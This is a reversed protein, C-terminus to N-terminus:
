KALAELLIVGGVLLYLTYVDGRLSLVGLGGLLAVTRSTNLILERTATLSPVHQEARDVLITYIFSPAVASTMSFWGIAFAFTALDRVFYALLCAPVSLLPGLLLFPTRVRVRDSMWGLVVTAIGAALSFLAFLLGLALSASTFLFAGLPTAASTLGDVGGQGSFALAARRGVRRLDLSFSLTEDAQALSRVLLFNVGVIVAALGFVVRYNVVDALFGGLIPALVGTIAFVATIAALRGARNGSHTERVILSNLPLWFLPIYIGFFLAGFVMGQLAPLVAFSIHGLIMIGLGTSMATTARIPRGRALGLVTCAAVAFGIIWVFIAVDFSLSQPPSVLYVLWFSAAMQNGFAQVALIGLLRRYGRRRQTGLPLTTTPGIAM